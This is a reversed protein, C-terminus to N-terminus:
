SLESLGNALANAASKTRRQDHLKAGENAVRQPRREPEDPDPQQQLQIPQAPWDTHATHQIQQPQRAIRPPRGTLFERNGRCM